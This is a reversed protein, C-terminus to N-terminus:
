FLEVSHSLAQALQDVFLVLKQPSLDLRYTLGLLSSRDYHTYKQFHGPKHHPPRLGGDPPPETGRIVVVTVIEAANM